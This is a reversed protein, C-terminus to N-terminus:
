HSKEDSWRTQGPGRPSLATRWEFPLRGPTRGNAQSAEAIQALGLEILDPSYMVTLTHPVCAGILSSIRSQVFIVGRM